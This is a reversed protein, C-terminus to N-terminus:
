RKQSDTILMEVPVRTPCSDALLPFEDEGFQPCDFPQEM